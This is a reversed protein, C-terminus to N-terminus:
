LNKNVISIHIPEPDGEWGLTQLARETDELGYSHTAMKELPYHGSEIIHIAGNIAWRDRGGVAKITKRGLLGTDFSVPRGGLGLTVLTGRHALLRVSTEFTAAAGTTNIVVDAMKGGTIERVREVPEEGEAGIVYDAGFEKAVNLRHADRPLGTVITCGAQAEKAGIVAGLGHQGPGMVVVTSGVKTEGNIQVMYLGNGIAIFLAFLEAPANFSAKTVVARPDLYMYEAYGGWLAPAVRIPTGGYLIGGKPSGPAKCGSFHGARCAECNRCPLHEEVTVRDGEKVGWRRSAEPGIRDIIGVIEHGLILPKEHRTDNPDSYPKWDAGCIGCAEVHLLGEDPGIEPLPFERMEIQRPGVLVAANSKTAM